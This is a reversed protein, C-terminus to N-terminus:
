KLVVVYDGVLCNRRFFTYFVVDDWWMAYYLKFCILICVTLFVFLLKVVCMLLGISIISYFGVLNFKLIEGLLILWVVVEPSSIFNLKYPMFCPLTLVWFSLSSILLFICLSLYLFNMVSYVLLKLQQWMYYMFYLLSFTINIVYSTM